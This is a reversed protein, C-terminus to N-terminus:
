PECPRIRALPTCPRWRRPRAISSRWASSTTSSGAAPTSRARSAEGCQSVPTPRLM